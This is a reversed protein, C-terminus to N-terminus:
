QHIMEFAEVKVGFTDAVGIAPLKRVSIQLFILIGPANAYATFHNVPAWKVLPKGDCNLNQHSNRKVRVDIKNCRDSYFNRVFCSLRATTTHALIQQSRIVQLPIVAIRVKWRM